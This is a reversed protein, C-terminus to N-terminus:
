AFAWAFLDGPNVFVDERGGGLTPDYYRKSAIGNADETLSAVTVAPGTAYYIAASASISLLPQQGSAGPFSPAAIKSVATTTMTQSQGLSGPLTSQGLGNYLGISTSGFCIHVGTLAM